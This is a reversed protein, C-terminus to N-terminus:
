TALGGDLRVLLGADAAMGDGPGAGNARDHDPQDRRPRLRRGRPRRRRDLRRDRQHVPVRGPLAAAPGADRGRAARLPLHRLPRGRRAPLALLSTAALRPFAVGRSGIQLPMVYTALGIALPLAFFVVAAAGYVSILQDFVDPSIMTNEPVILQLRILVLVTVALMLTSLATCIYLLGVRKHDTATMMSVWGYRERPPKRTVVEPRAPSLTPPTM